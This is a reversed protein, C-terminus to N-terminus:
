KSGKSPAAEDAAVRKHVRVIGNVDRLVDATDLVQPEPTPFNPDLERPWQRRAEVVVRDVQNQNLFNRGITRSLEALAHDNEQDAFRGFEQALRRWRQHEFGIRQGLLSVDSPPYLQVVESSDDGRNTRIAIQHDDAYELGHTLHFGTPYQADLNLARTYPGLVRRVRSTLDAASETGFLGVFVCFLHLFIALSIIGRLGESLEGNSPNDETPRNM